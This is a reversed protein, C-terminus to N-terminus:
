APTMVFFAIALLVYAGILLLGEFWSTHGDAAVANALFAAGMIAFLNLVSPFILSMPMGIAWSILVLLPAIVLGVQLASGIFISMVLNMRGQRAFSVGAFLDAATGVLALPVVGVFLLPLHLTRAASELSGSVLEACVAVGITAAFLVTLAKGFSWGPAESRIDEEAFVDRHTVLTYVLNAAYLLLLVVAVGISLAEESAIRQTVTATHAVDAQDFVAPLLLAFVVILLLSSLNGVRARSFSMNNRSVGGTFCALGLGLLSTGIISGTIQARVIEAHGGLLVFLALILEAASGFSVNLLGGIAPGAAAALQETARRMWEALVMVAAGGVLFVALPPAHILYLAIAAPILTLLWAM